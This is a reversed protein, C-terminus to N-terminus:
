CCSAQIPQDDEDVVGTFDPACKIIHDGHTDGIHVSRDGTLDFVKGYRSAMVLGSVNGCVTCTKGTPFKIDKDFLFYDPFDPLTGKYTVTEGYSECIDEQLDTKILRTTITAFAIDPLLAQEEDTLPTKWTMLYRPDLFDNAVSLRRFDQIYLAGALRLARLKMNDALAAPIRRDTFVDTFYFEGGEVLVRRVECLYRDKDPSLNFTGNSVVVDVSNDPVFSLDEPAGHVLEVNAADYGFQRMEQDLYKRAINLRAEVPEVGIVRGAPGVLQAALYTDRGSGCCLDLVTCGELLPPLTCGLEHYTNKIEASVNFLLPRAEGPITGDADRTRATAQPDAGQIEAIENYYAIYDM